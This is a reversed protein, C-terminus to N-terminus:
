QRLVNRLLSYSHVSEDHQVTAIVVVVVVSTQSHGPGFSALCHQPIQVAVRRVADNYVAEVSVARALEAVGDDHRREGGCGGMMVM